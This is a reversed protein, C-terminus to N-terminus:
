LNKEISYRIVALRHQNFDSDAEEIGSTHDFDFIKYDGFRSTKEESTLDEDVLASTRLDNLGLRVLENKLNVAEKYYRVASDNPEVNYKDQKYEKDNIIAFTENDNKKYYKVGNVKVYQYEHQDDIYESLANEKEITVGRYTATTNTASVNSLLYGSLNIVENGKKGKITVYNDLAYTIVVFDDGGLTYKASYYIYPRLGWTSEQDKYTADNSVDVNTLTNTFPTYIYYGDYLTYVLAPVYYKLTEENYGELNFNTSASNFFTNVSAEITRIKTNSLDSTSTSFTNLQFAKIADYTSNLLKTDYSTQLDLTKIQSKGYESIVISIPLIIIIFIIALTQLKM